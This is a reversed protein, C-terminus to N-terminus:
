TKRFWKKVIDPIKSFFWEFKEALKPDYNTLAKIGTECLSIVIGSLSIEVIPLSIAPFINIIAILITIGLVILAKKLFKNLLVKWGITGNIVKTM